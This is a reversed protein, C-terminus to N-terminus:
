RADTQEANVIGRMGAREAARKVLGESKVTDAFPRVSELAAARGKPIAVAFLEIGWRGDLVRSGPSQGSMEFLIAKNTAYADIQGGALMAVAASLSPAPVVSAHAFERSLTTHSSGGATVGM